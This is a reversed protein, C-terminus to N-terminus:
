DRSRDGALLIRRGRKVRRRSGQVRLHWPPPPETDLDRADGCLVCEVSLADELVCEVRLTDGLVCEVSVPCVTSPDLM